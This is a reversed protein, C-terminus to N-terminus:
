SLESFSLAARKANHSVHRIACVARFTSIKNTLATFGFRCAKFYLAIIRLTLAEISSALLTYENSDTRFYLLQMLSSSNDRWTPFPLMKM